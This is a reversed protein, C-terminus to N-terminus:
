SGKAEAALREMRLFATYAPNDAYPEELVDLKKKLVDLEEESAQPFQELVQYYEEAAAMMKRFRLSRQPLEVGQIGESIDEPSQDAYPVSGDSEPDLNRLQGPKLSQIVFPSHSTAVFQIKPFTRRLDNVVRRQWKPHLHLDIEDILVIGEANEAAHEGWFPNLVTARWAIDAVMALMNRVGDSLMDFSFISGDLLELRLEEHALDYFFCRANDLCNLVANEIAKIHPLIQGRQASVLTQKRMWETLFKQNSAPNLCDVYGDWRSGVGMKSSKKKQTMLWLRKTEYYAIVPLPKKEGNHVALGIRKSLYFVQKGNNLVPPKSFDDIEVGWHLTDGDVTVHCAVIMPYQPQLDPLGDFEYVVKRVDHWSINRINESFIGSFFGSMVFALADLLGTKGTANDGVLLTFCDDLAINREEFGQFNRVSLEHIKM